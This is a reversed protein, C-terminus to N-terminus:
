GEGEEGMFLFLGWGTMRAITGPLISKGRPFLREDTNASPLHYNLAATAELERRALLCPQSAGVWPPRLFAEAETSFGTGKTGRGGRTLMGGACCGLALGAHCGTAPPWHGHWLMPSGAALARRADLVLSEFCLM